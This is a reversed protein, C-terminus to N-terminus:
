WCASPRWRRCRRAYRIALEESLQRQAPLLSGLPYVGEEIRERITAIASDTVTHPVNKM